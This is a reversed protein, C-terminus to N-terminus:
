KLKERIGGTATVTIDGMAGLRTLLLDVYQPGDIELTMTSGDRMVRAAVDHPLNAISAEIHGLRGGAPPTVDLHYDVGPALETGTKKDFITGTGALEM